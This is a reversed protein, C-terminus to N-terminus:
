AKHCVNGVYLVNAYRGREKKIIFKLKLPCERRKCEGAGRFFPASFIKRSNETRVHNNKFRISCWPNSAKIGRKFISTWAGGLLRGGSLFQNVGKADWDDETFKFKVKLGDITM